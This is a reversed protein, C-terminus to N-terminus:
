PPGTKWDLKRPADQKLKKVETELEAVRKSLKSLQEALYCFEDYRTM